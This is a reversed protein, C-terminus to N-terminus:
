SWELFSVLTNALVPYMGWALGVGITLAPKGKLFLCKDDPFYWANLGAFNLVEYAIGIIAGCLFQVPLSTGQTLWAITGFLLGVTVLVNVAVMRRPTYVWLQMARALIEAIMGLLISVAVFKLWSTM